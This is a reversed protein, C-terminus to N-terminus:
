LRFNSQCPKGAGAGIKKGDREASFKGPNKKIKKRFFDFSHAQVKSGSQM